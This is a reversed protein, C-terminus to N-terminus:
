ICYNKTILYGSIASVMAKGLANDDYKNSKIYERLRYMEHGLERNFRHDTGACITSTTINEIM